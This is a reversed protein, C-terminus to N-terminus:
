NRNAIWTRPTSNQESGESGQKYSFHKGDPAWALCYNKGKILSKVDGTVLDRLLIGDKTAYLLRSRDPSAAAEFVGKTVISFNYTSDTPSASVEVLNAGNTDDGSLILLRGQFKPGVREPKRTCAAIVICAAIASMIYFRFTRVTRRGALLIM